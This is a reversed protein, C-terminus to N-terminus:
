PGDRQDRTPEDQDRGSALDACEVAVSDHAELYAKAGTDGALDAAVAAWHDRGLLVPHGPHGDYTARALSTPGTGAERVRRAVAATVDPLDVLTVLVADATDPLARLGARLSAAMGEAWDAAVVVATGPPVLARAEDAQAGLVVLVERCGADRLVGVARAVWSTGDPDTLLAKPRGMRSGAGAALVLGVM